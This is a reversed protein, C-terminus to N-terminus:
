PKYVEERVVAIPAPLNGSRLVRAIDEAQERTFRGSIQGSDLIQSKIFAVSRVEKNLVIALYNSINKSTWDGFRQAADTKLSFVIQFAESDGYSSVAQANRISQGTIIPERKVVVYVEPSSATSADREKYPLVVDITAAADMAAKRTAYKRVPAPSPESVVACIELGTSLLVNKVRVPDLSSSFRLMIQGSDQRQVKCYINLQDCRNQIISRTWEIDQDLLSPDDNVLLLLQVGGKDQPKEQAELSRFGSLTLTSVLLLVLALRSLLFTTRTKLTSRESLWASYQQRNCDYM